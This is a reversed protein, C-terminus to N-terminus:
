ENKRKFGLLSMLGAFIGVLGTGILELGTGKSEGTKPYSAPMSEAKPKEQIKGKYVIPQSASDTKQVSGEEASAKSLILTKAPLKTKDSTTPKNPVTTEKPIKSIPKRDYTVVEIMAKDGMYETGVEIKSIETCNPTEYGSASLNPSVVEGLTDTPSLLKWDTYSMEGTVMDVTATRMYEVAQKVAPAIEKGTQKDVYKITRVVKSLLAEKNTEKPWDPGAPNQPNLPAGPIGPKEPTVTIMRHDYLVTETITNDGAYDTDIRMAAIKVKDPVTYGRETLDPSATEAFTDTPTMLEWDSYGVHGTVEDVTAERAYSVVQIMRDSIEANTQKDLYKIIRTVTTELMEKDTGKPWEPGDPDAPDIPTDPNGPNEPTVRATTHQLHITVFQDVASDNDFSAPLPSISVIFYNKDKYGDAIQDLDSQGKNLGTNTWGQDFFVNAELTKKETDDVVNYLLKQLMGKVYVYYNQDLSDNTDFLGKLAGPDVAAQVYGKPIMVKNAYTDSSKGKIIQQVNILEQGDAPLWNKEKKSNSIDIYHVIVKQDDATYLYTVDKAADTLVGTAPASDQSLGKFAFGPIILQEANYTTYEPTVGTTNKGSIVKSAALKQGNSTKGDKTAVYNVLIQPTGYIEATLLSTNRLDNEASSGKAYNFNEVQAIQGITTAKITSVHVPVYASLVDQDALKNTYLAITRIDSWNKVQAARLWDGTTFDFPNTTNKGSLDYTKASYVITGGTGHLDTAPGSMVLTFADGHAISPLVAISQANAYPANSGNSIALRVNGSNIDDWDDTRVGRDFGAKGTADHYFNTAGTKNGSIGSLTSVVTPAIIRWSWGTSGTNTQGGYRPHMADKNADTAQTIWHQTVGKNPAAIDNVKWPFPDTSFTYGNIWVDKSINVTNQSFDFQTLHEGTIPDKGLDTIIPYYKYTTTKSGSWIKLLMAWNNIKSQDIDIMGNAFSSVLIRPLKVPVIVDPLLSNTVILKGAADKPLAIEGKLGVYGNATTFAQGQTYTGSVDFDPAKYTSYQTTAIAKSDFYYLHAVAEIDKNSTLSHVDFQIPVKDGSKYTGDDIVANSICVTINNGALIKANGSVKSIHAGNMLAKSLEPDLNNYSLSKVTYVSGNDLTVEFPGNENENEGSSYSNRRYTGLSIDGLTGNWNKPLTLVYNIENTQNVTKDFFEVQIYPDTTYDNYNTNTTNGSFFGNKDIEKSITKSYFGSHQTDLYYNSSTELTQHFIAAMEGPNAQGIIVDPSSTMQVPFSGKSGDYYNPNMTLEPTFHYTGAPTGSKFYGYFYTIGTPWSYNGTGDIRDVIIDTGPGGPQTIGAPIGPIKKQDMAYDYPSDSIESTKAGTLVFGTPVHIEGSMQTWEATMLGAGPTKIQQDNAVKLAFTYVSKGDATLINNEVNGNKLTAVFSTELPNNVVVTGNLKQTGKEVTIPLSTLGTKYQTNKGVSSINSLSGLYYSVNFTTMSGTSNIYTYILKTQNGVMQKTASMGKPTDYNALIVGKALTVTIIDQNTLLSSVSFKESTGSSFPWGSGNATLTYEVSHDVAATDPNMDLSFSDTKTDAAKAADKMSLKAPAQLTTNSKKVPKETSIDEAKPHDKEVVSAETGEANQEHNIVGDTAAAISVKEKIQITDMNKSQEITMNETSQDTATALSQATNKSKVTAPNTTQEVTDSASGDSMSPVPQERSDNNEPKVASQSSVDASADKDTAPVKMTSAANETTPSVPALVKQTDETAKQSVTDAKASDSVMLGLSMSFLTVGILGWNRKSVYSKESVIADVKQGNKGM